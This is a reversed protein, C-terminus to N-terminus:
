IERLLTSGNGFHSLNQEKDEAVTRIKPRTKPEIEEASGSLRQNFFRKKEIGTKKREPFFGYAFKMESITTQFLKSFNPIALNIQHYQSTVSVFM